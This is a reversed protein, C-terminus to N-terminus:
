SSLVAWRGAGSSSFFKSQLESWSFCCCFEALVFPHTRPNECIYQSSYMLIQAKILSSQRPENNRKGDKGDMWLKGKLFGTVWPWQHSCLRFVAIKNQPCEHIYKQTYVDITHTCVM